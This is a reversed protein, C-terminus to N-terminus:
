AFWSVMEWWVVGVRRYARMNHKYVVYIVAAPFGNYVNDIDVKRRFLPMEPKKEGACLVYHCLFCLMWCTWRLTSFSLTDSLFKQGQIKWLATAASIIDSKKYARPLYFLIGKRWESKPNTTFYLAMVIAQFCYTSSSSSGNTQLMKTPKLRESANLGFLVVKEGAM